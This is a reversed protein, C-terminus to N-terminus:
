RCSALALLEQENDLEASPSNAVYRANLTGPLWRVILHVGACKTMVECYVFKCFQADMGDVVTALLYEGKALHRKQHVDFDKWPKQAM